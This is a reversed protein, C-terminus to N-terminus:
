PINVETVLRAAGSPPIIVRRVLGTDSNTVNVMPVGALPEVPGGDVQLYVRGRPTFCLNAVTAPNGGGPLEFEATAPEYRSQREDFMAVYRSTGVGNWVGNICNPTGVGATTGFAAGGRIAEMVVFHAQPNPVPQSGFARPNALYQINVATGRGMARARAFRILNTIETGADVVRRDRLYSTFSPAAAAALIGIMAIVALLEMM